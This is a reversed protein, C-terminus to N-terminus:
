GNKDEEQKLGKWSLLLVLGAIGSVAGIPIIGRLILALGVMVLCWGIITACLCATHSYKYALYLPLGLLAAVFLFFFAGCGIFIALVFVSILLYDFPKIVKM